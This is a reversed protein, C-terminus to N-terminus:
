SICALAQCVKFPEPVDVQGSSAREAASRALLTELANGAGPSLSLSRSNRDAQLPILLEPTEIFLLHVQLMGNDKLEQWLECAQKFEQELSGVTQVSEALAKQLMTINQVLEAEKLDAARQQAAFSAQLQDREHCLKSMADHLEDLHQIAEADQTARQQRSQQAAAQQTQRQQELEALQEKLQVAESSLDECRSNCSQVQGELDRQRLEKLELQKILDEHGMKMGSAIAQCLLDGNQGLVFAVHNLVELQVDPNSNAGKTEFASGALRRLECPLGACARDLKAVSEHTADYVKHLADHLSALESELRHIESTHTQQQATLTRVADELQTKQHETQDALVQLMSQGQKM